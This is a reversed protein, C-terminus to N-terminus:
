FIQKPKIEVVVKCKHNGARLQQTARKCIPCTTSRQMWTRMCDYHFFHGCNTACVEDIKIRNFCMVCETKPRFLLLKPGADASRAEQAGGGHKNLSENGTLINLHRKCYNLGCHTYPGALKCRKGTTVADANCRLHVIQMSTQAREEAIEIGSEIARHYNATAERRRKEGVAAAARVPRTESM